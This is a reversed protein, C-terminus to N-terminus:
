GMHTFTYLIMVATSLRFLMDGVYSISIKKTFIYICIPIAVSVFYALALMSGSGNKVVFEGTEMFTWLVISGMAFARNAGHKLFFSEFIIANAIPQIIVYFIFWAVWPYILWTEYFFSTQSKLILSVCILDAFLIFLVGLLFSVKHIEQKIERCLGLLEGDIMSCLFLAIYITWHLDIRHMPTVYFLHILILIGPLVYKVWFPLPKSFLKM